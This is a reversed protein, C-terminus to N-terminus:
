LSFFNSPFGIVNVVSEKFFLIVKKQFFGCHHSTNKKAPTGHPCAAKGLLDQKWTGPASRCGRM